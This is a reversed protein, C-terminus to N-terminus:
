GGVTPLLSLFSQIFDPTPFLAVMDNSRERSVLPVSNRPALKVKVKLIDVKKKKDRQVCSSSLGCGVAVLLM